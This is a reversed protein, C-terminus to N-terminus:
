PESAYESSFGAVLLWGKSDRRYLQGYGWGIKEGHESFCGACMCAWYEAGRVAGDIMYKDESLSRRCIDCCDPPPYFHVEERAKGAMEEISELVANGQSEAAAKKPGRVDLSDLPGLPVGIALPTVTIVGSEYDVNTVRGFGAFTSQGSSPRFLCFASSTTIWRPDILLALRLGTLQCYIHPDKALDGTFGAFKPADSSTIMPVNKTRFVQRDFSVVAGIMSENLVVDKANVAAISLRALVTQFASMVHNLDWGLSHLSQSDKYRSLDVKYGALEAQESLRPVNIYTLQSITSKWARPKVLRHAIWSLHDDKMQLLRQVTYDDPNDDVIKHEARCLLMLNEPANRESLKLSSIGRAARRTEGVIHAVEGILSSVAGDSEFVLQGKCICCLGACQGWVVKAARQSVPM